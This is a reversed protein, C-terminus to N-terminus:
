STTGWLGASIWQKYRQWLHAEVVAEAEHTWFWAHRWRPPVLQHGFVPPIYLRVPRARVAQQGPSNLYYRDRRM